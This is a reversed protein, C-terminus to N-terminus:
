KNSDIWSSLAKSDAKANAPIKLNKRKAIAEAFTLAKESPARLTGSQSAHEDLFSRCGDFTTAAEPPLEIGKRSAISNALALMKETPSNNRTSQEAMSSPGKSSYTNSKSPTNPLALKPKSKLELIAASVKAVCGAEFEARGSHGEAILDLEAEWEATRVVDSLIKPLFAILQRGKETSILKKKEDVLYGHRKLSELVAARTASTGLGSTDRLVKRFKSDDVFKAANKMDDILNGETYRQPPKTKKAEVRISEISAIDGDSIKSIM